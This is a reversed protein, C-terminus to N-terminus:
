ARLEPPFNGPRGNWWELSPTPALRVRSSYLYQRFHLVGTNHGKFIHLFDPYGQYGGPFLFFLNGEWGFTCLTVTNLISSKGFSGMFPPIHSTLERSITHIWKDSFFTHCNESFMTSWLQFVHFVCLSKVKGSINKSLRFAHQPNRTSITLM